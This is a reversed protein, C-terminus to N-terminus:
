PQWEEAAAALDLALAAPPVAEVGNGLPFREAGPYVVLRRAPKLDVCAEHFGRTVTPATSRKIEVAWLRGRPPKLLLDIEAGGTTRYFYAATGEPAAALLNEVVFGEWSNGIVPHALLDELDEIGLLAHVLGSDRVYLRASRVLRKGINGHWAPLRRILLLDVLLDVYRAATKVDVGVNRALETVNLPAGQRHALMTWFRRLTEAAIRPGFQPIDRELYTRIFNRRWRLSHADSAALLSDPFGGRLWLRDIPRGTPEGLHFPTLELFQIRGALSEGSQRLLDLAASGLLLYRGPGRRERRARDILGRLVPFLDPVRHLEDLIVLKDLHLALYAAADALRARDAESELDLYHAGLREAVALALTTKGVQRPGLLCVAPAETLAALVEPLLGREIM